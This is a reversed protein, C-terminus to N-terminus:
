QLTRGGLEPGYADGIKETCSHRCRHRCRRRHSHKSGHVTPAKDGRHGQQQAARACRGQWERGRRRTNAKVVLRPRNSAPASTLQPRLDEAGGAAVPHGYARWRGIVAAGAATTKLIGVAELRRHIPKVREESLGAAPEVCNVEDGRVLIAAISRVCDLIHRLQVGSVVLRYPQRLEAARLRRHAGALVTGSWGREKSDNERASHIRACTGLCRANIFSIRGANSAMGSTIGRYAHNTARAPVAALPGFSASM